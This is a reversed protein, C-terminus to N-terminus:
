TAVLGLAAGAGFFGINMSLRIVWASATGEARSHTAIIWYNIILDGFVTTHVVPTSMFTAGERAARGARPRKLAKGAASRLNSSAKQARKLPVTGLCRMVRCEILSAAPESSIGAM